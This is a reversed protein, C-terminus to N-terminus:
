SVSVLSGIVAVAGIAVLGAYSAVSLKTSAMHGRGFGSLVFACLGGAILGGIHGGISINSGPIFGFALNIVILGGISGGLLAIGRQRELVFMAGMLGFLAGSAGATLSNPSLLLAGFSGGLLSVMYVVGFRVSGLYRELPQGIIWLFYMNFAIHLIGFHVFGSTVLRWYDGHAIFPGALSLKVGLSNLDASGFGLGGNISNTLLFVVVNAAILFRTVWPENPQTFAARRMVRPKGSCEPCRIGVAAHTMCEPCVNRGCNSCSLATQRHPHRYCTAPETAM